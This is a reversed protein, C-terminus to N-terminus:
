SCWGARATRLTPFGSSGDLFDVQGVTLSLREGKRWGYRYACEFLGRLWIGEKATAEALKQYQDDPLFGARANDERMMPFWPPASHLVGSRRALNFASRVLSLERNISAPPAGEATRRRVYEDLMRTTLDRARVAGLLPRIHLRWRGDPSKADKLRLRDHILKSEVLSGVTLDTPAPAGLLRAESLKRRLFEEADQRVTTKSSERYRKGKVSWQVM